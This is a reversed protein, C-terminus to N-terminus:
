RIKHICSKGVARERFVLNVLLSQDINGIKGWVVFKSKNM